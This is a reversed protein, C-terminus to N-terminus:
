RDIPTKLYLSKVLVVGVAALPTALAVGLLGGFSWFPVWIEQRGTRTWVSTLIPPLHRKRV